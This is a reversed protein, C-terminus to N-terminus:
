LSSIKQKIFDIAHQPTTNNLLLLITELTNKLTLNSIAISFEMASTINNYEQKNM